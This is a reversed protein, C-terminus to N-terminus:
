DLPYKTMQNKLVVEQGKNILLKLYLLALGLCMNKCLYLFIHRPDNWIIESPLLCKNPNILQEYAFQNRINKVQNLMNGNFFSGIMKILSTFIYVIFTLILFVSIVPALSIFIIKIRKEDDKAVQVVIKVLTAESKPNLSM